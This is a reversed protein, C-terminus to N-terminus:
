NDGGESIIILKSEKSYNLPLKNTALYSKLVVIIPPPTIPKDIAQENDFLIPLM